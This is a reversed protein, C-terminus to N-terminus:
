KLEDKYKRLKKRLFHKVNNLHVGVTSPNKGLVYAIDKIRFFEIKKHSNKLSEHATRIRERVTRMSFGTLRLIRSYFQRDKFFENTWLYFIVQEILSLEEVAKIVDNMLANFLFANRIRIALDDDVPIKDKDLEELSREIRKYGRLYDKMLRKLVGELYKYFDGKTEDFNILHKGKKLRNIVYVYFESCSPHSTDVEYDLFYAGENGCPIRFFYRIPFYYLFESDIKFVKRSIEEVIEVTEM